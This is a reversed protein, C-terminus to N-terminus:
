PVLTGEGPTPEATPPASSGDLEVTGEGGLEITEGPGPDLDLIHPADAPAAPVSKAPEPVPAVTEPTKQCSSTIITMAAVSCVVGVLQQM